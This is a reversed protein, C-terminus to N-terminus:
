KLARAAAPNVWNPFPDGDKQRILRLRSLLIEGARPSLVYAPKGVELVSRFSRFGM